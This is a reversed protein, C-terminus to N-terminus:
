TEPDLNTLPKQEWSKGAALICSLGRPTTSLITWSGSNKSAFVQLLNGNSQLGISVPAEKYKSTLQKAIESHDHCPLRPSVPVQATAESSMNAVFALALSAGFIVWSRPKMIRIGEAPAATKM